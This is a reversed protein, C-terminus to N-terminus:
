MDDDDDYDDEIDDFEDSVDVNSQGFPEGDFAFQVGYLNANVRKGYKNNQVWFDIIPNVYCGAYIVDDDETLASGDKDKVIPKKSRGAKVSWNGEYGDYEVDDGDKLCRRDQPVKVKAEAMAQSIIKDLKKKTGTDDKSFLFTAEFKGEEGDYTSRKFISPFSLRVNELRIRGSELIKVNSNKTM